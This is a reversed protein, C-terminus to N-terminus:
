IYIYQTRMLICTCMHAHAYVHTYARANTGHAQKHIHTHVHASGDQNMLNLKDTEFHVNDTITFNTVMKIQIYVHETQRYQEAIQAM